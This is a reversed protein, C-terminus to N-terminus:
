ISFLFYKNYDWLINRFFSPATCKNALKQKQTSQFLKRKFNSALFSIVFFVPTWYCTTSFQQQLQYGKVPKCSDSQKESWFSTQKINFLVIPFLAPFHPFHTTNTYQSRELRRCVQLCQVSIRQDFCDSKISLPRWKNCPALLRM